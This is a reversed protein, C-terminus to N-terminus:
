SGTRTWAHPFSYWHAPSFTRDTLKPNKQLQPRHKSREISVDGSIANTNNHVTWDTVTKGPKTSEVEFMWTYWHGTRWAHVTAGVGGNAYKSMRTGIEVGSPSRTHMEPFQRELYFKGSCWPSYPPDYRDCAGGLGVEYNQYMGHWADNVPITVNESIGCQMKPDCTSRKADVPAAGADNANSLAQARYWITNQM